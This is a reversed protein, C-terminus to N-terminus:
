ASSPQAHPQAQPQSQPQPQAPARAPGNGAAKDKKLRTSRPVRCAAAWAELTIPDDRFTNRMIADFGRAAALAKNLSEELAKQGLSCATKGNAYEERARELNRVKTNLIELFDRPMAHNIFTEAMPPADQIASRAANLLKADGHLPLQFRDDFGPKEAAAAHATHYLLEVDKRLALRAEQRVRGLELLRNEL